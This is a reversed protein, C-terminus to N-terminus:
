PCGTSGFRGSSGFRRPGKETGQRRAPAPHLRDAIEHVPMNPEVILLRAGRARGKIDKLLTHTDTPIIGVKRQCEAAAEVNWGTIHVPIEAIDTNRNDFGHIETGPNLDIEFAAPVSKIRAVVNRPYATDNNGPSAIGGIHRQDVGEARM